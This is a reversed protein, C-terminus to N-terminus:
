PSALIIVGALTIALMILSGALILLKKGLPSIKNHLAPDFISMNQRAGHGWEVILFIVFAILTLFIPVREFTEIWKM